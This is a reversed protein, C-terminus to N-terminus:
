PVYAGRMTVTYEHDVHDAIMVESGAMEVEEVGERAAKAAAYRRRARENLEEEKVKRERHYRELTAAEEAKSKHGRVTIEAGKKTDLVQVQQAGLGSKNLSFCKTHHHWKRGCHKCPM